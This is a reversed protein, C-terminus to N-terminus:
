PNLAGEWALKVPLISSRRGLMMIIRICPINGLQHVLALQLKLYVAVLALLFKLLIRYNIIILRQVGWVIFNEEQQPFLPIPDGAQCIVLKKHMVQQQILKLSIQSFRLQLITMDVVLTYRGMLLLLM